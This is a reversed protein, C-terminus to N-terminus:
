PPDVFDYRFEVLLFQNPGLNVKLKALDVLEVIYEGQALGGFETSYEGLEPKTGTLQIPSQWDGSRLVVPHDKLGAARVAITGIVGDVTEIIRAQWAFAPTATPSPTPDPTPSPYYPIPTATPKIQSVEVPPVAATPRGPVAGHGVIAASQGVVGNEDTARPSFDIEVLGAGDVFLRQSAGTNIAEVLYVGPGLQRFECVLSGLVPNPIVECFEETGRVSRLAIVQGARGGSVRVRIRSEKKAAAQAGNTDKLVQAQWGSIGAPLVEVDFTVQIEEENSVAVPLSLNLGEPAVMYHGPPVNRFRCLDPGEAGRGTICRKAGQIGGNAARLQIPLGEIGFVKVVIASLEAPTDQRGEIVGLWRTVPTSTPVPTPTDVPTPSMTPTATDTPTATITPTPTSPPPLPTDTATPPLIPTATATPLPTPSPAETYFEVRTETNAKLEVEFRSNLGVPEIIYRAPTLGTFEVVDSGLERPKQGTNATNIVEVPTSLRVPHGSLGTVQVLLRAFPAGIGWTESALRGQWILGHLPTPTAPAGAMQTAEPVPIQVFEIVALNYGDAEVVTSVGLSPVSVTWSGQNVPAFEATYPGYEPKSGSEATMLHDGTRLEVPTGVLGEVRVRFISGNGETVGLTNSVLRAVWIKAAVTPTTSPPPTPTFTRTPLTDGTAQAALSSEPQGPLPPWGTLLIGWIVLFIAAFKISAKRIM